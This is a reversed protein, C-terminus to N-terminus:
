RATIILVGEGADGQYFYGGPYGLPYGPPVGWPGVPGIAMGWRVQMNETCVELLVPGELGIGWEGSTKEVPVVRVAAPYM